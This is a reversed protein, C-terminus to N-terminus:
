QSVINVRGLVPFFSLAHLFVQRDVTKFGYGPLPERFIFVDPCFAMRCVNDAAPVTKTSKCSLWHNIAHLFSTFCSLSLVCCCLLKDGSTKSLVLSYPIVCQTFLFLIEFDRQPSFLFVIKCNTHIDMLFVQITTKFELVTSKYSM